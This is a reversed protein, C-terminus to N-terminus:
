KSHLMNVINFIFDSINNSEHENLSTDNLNNMVIEHTQSQRTFSYNADCVNAM